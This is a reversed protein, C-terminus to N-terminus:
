IEKLSIRYYIHVLNLSFQIHIKGCVIRNTNVFLMMVQYLNLACIAIIYLIKFLYPILIEHSYM